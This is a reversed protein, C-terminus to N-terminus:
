KKLIEIHNKTRKRYVKEWIWNRLLSTRVTWKAGTVLIKKM